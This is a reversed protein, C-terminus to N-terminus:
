LSATATATATSASLSLTLDELRVLDAWSWLVGAAPARVDAHVAEGDGTLVLEIPVPPVRPAGLPSTKGNITISWDLELEVQATARALDDGSWTTVVGSPREAALHIGTLQAGYGLVTDPIAIPGLAVALREIRIAGRADAAAVIAGREVTLAASGSIWGQATRREATITGGSAAADVVLEADGSALRDRVSEPADASRNTCATLAFFFLARSRM